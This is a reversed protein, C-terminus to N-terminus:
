KLSNISDVLLQRTYAPNHIGWSRDNGVLKYNTYANELILLPDNYFPLTGGRHCVACKDGPRYGPLVGGNRDRLLEGLELWLTFIDAQFNNINFSEAGAHCDLCPATNVINGATDGPRMENKDDYRPGFGGLDPATGQARMRMTHGGVARVGQEDVIEVTNNMHCFVCTGYTLHPNKASYDSGPYEYASGKKAATKRLLVQHWKEEHCTACLQDPGDLRLAAPNVATASGHPNHCAVCSISKGDPDPLRDFNFFVPGGPFVPKRFAVDKFGLTGSEMM